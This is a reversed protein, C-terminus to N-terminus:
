LVQEAELPRLQGSRSLPLTIRLRWGPDGNRAALLEPEGDRPITLLQPGARYESKYDCCHVSPPLSLRLSCSPFDSAGRCAAVRCRGARRHCAPVGVREPKSHHRVVSRCAGPRVLRSQTAGPKRGAGRANLGDGFRLQRCALGTFRDDPRTARM